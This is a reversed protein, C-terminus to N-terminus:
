LLLGYFLAEVTVTEGVKLYMSSGETLTDERLIEVRDSLDTVAEAAVLATMLKTTSAIGRRTHADKEYLVRGSEADVLIASAASTAPPGDARCPCALLLAACLAAILFRM